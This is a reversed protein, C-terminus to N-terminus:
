HYNNVSTFVYLVSDMSFCSLFPLRANVPNEVFRSWLFLNLPLCACCGIFFFQFFLSDVKQKTHWPVIDMVVNLLEKFVSTTCQCVTSYFFAHLSHFLQRTVETPINEAVRQRWIALHRERSRTSIIIRNTKFLDRNYAVINNSTSSVLQSADYTWPLFLSGTNYKEWHAVFFGLLCALMIHYLELLSVIGPGHGFLSFLSMPILFAASSDLGHDFLEGLPSSFIFRLVLM